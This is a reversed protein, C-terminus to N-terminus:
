DHYDCNTQILHLIHFFNDFYVPFIAFRLICSFYLLFEYHFNVSIQFFTTDGQKAVCAKIGHTPYKTCPRVYVRPKLNKLIKKFNFFIDM